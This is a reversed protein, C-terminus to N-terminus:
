SPISFQFSLYILPRKESGNWLEGRRTATGTKTLSPFGHLLVFLPSPPLVDAPEPEVPETTLLRPAEVGGLEWDARPSGGFPEWTNRKTGAKLLTTKPKFEDRQNYSGASKFARNWTIHACELPM